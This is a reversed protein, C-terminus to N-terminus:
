EQHARAQSEAGARYAIAAAAQKLKSIVPILQDEPLATSHYTMALSGLPYGSKDLVAVAVTSWGPTINEVEQAWGRARTVALTEQLEAVTKPGSGTRDALYRNSPYLASVQKDSLHALMAQGSATLEAPLRVGVDTVLSLGMSGRQEVVYIVDKGSLIAFHASQHIQDVMHEVVTLAIRRLPEQRQYAWALEYARVGLSYRGTDNDHTVYGFEVLTRLIRYTTSRAMKLERALSAAAQPTIHEALSNLIRVVNATSNSAPM